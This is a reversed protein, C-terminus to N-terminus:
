KLRVVPILGMIKTLSDVMGAVFDPNNIDEEREVLRLETGEDTSAQLREKLAAFLAEDAEADEFTAGKVSLASMGGRPVWVETRDPRAERLKRAIVQGLQACEEKTTRMLTVSPNHAYLRRGGKAWREPM